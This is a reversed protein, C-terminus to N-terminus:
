HPSRKISKLSGRILVRLIIALCQKWQSFQDMSEIKVVKKQGFYQILSQSLLLLNSLHKLSYLSRTNVKNNPVGGLVVVSNCDHDYILSWIDAITKIMPWETV